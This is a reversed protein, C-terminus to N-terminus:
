VVVFQFTLDVNIWIQLWIQIVTNVIEIQGLETMDIIETNIRGEQGRDTEAVVIDETEERKTNIIFERQHTM